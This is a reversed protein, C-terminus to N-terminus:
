SFRHTGDIEDGGLPGAIAVFEDFWATRKEFTHFVGQLCFSIEVASTFGVKDRFAELELNRRRLEQRESADAALEESDLAEAILGETMVQQSVYVFPPSVHKAAALFKRFDGGREESWCMDAREDVDREGYYIALELQACEAVVEEVLTALEDAAGAESM